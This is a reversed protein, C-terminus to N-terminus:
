RERGCSKIVWVIDLSGFSGNRVRFTDHLYGSKNDDKSWILTYKWCLYFQQNKRESERKGETKREKEEKKSKREKSREKKRMREEKEKKKYVPLSHEIQM